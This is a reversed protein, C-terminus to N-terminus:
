SSASIVDANAPINYLVSQQRRAVTWPTMRLWINFQYFRQKDKAQPAVPGELDFYENAKINLGLTSLDLRYIAETSATAGYPVQVGDDFIFPKGNFVASEPFADYVDGARLGQNMVGDAYAARLYYQYAGPTGLLVPDADASEAFSSMYIDFATMKRLLAIPRDGEGGGGVSTVPYYQDAWSTYTSSNLNGVIDGQTVSVLYNLGHPSGAPATSAGHTVASVDKIASAQAIEVRTKIVKFLIADGVNDKVVEEPIYVSWLFRVWSYAGSRGPSISQPNVNGMLGLTSGSITSDFIAFEEQFGGNNFVIGKGTTKRINGYKADGLAAPKGFAKLALLRLLPTASFAAMRFKPLFHPLTHILLSESKTTTATGTYIGPEVAM